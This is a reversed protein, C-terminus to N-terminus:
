KNREAVIDISMGGAITTLVVIFLFVAIPVLIAM